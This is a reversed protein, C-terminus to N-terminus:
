QGQGLNLMEALMNTLLEGQEIADDLAVHTHPHQSRWREPMKKKSVAHYRTRLTRPDPSAEELQFLNCSFNDVRRPRLPAGPEPSEIVYAVSAFSLMSHPGPIPGDTEVDTSVYVESM